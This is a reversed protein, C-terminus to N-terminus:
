WAKLSEENPEVKVAVDHGPQGDIQAAATEVDQRGFFGAFVRGGVLLLESKGGRLAPGDEGEVDAIESRQMLLPLPSATRM